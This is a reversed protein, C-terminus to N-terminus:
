SSILVIFYNSSISKFIKSHQFRVCNFCRHFMINISCSCTVLFSTKVHSSLRENRTPHGCTEQNSTCLRSKRSISSVSSAVNAVLARSRTGVSHCSQLIFTTTTSTFTEAKFAHRLVIRACWTGLCSTSFLLTTLFVHVTKSSTARM